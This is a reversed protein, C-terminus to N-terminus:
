VASRLEDIDEATRAARLINDATIRNRERALAYGGHPGRIGKLIGDRVLV